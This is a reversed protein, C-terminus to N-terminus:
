RANRGSECGGPESESGSDHPQSSSGSESPAPEASSNPRKDQEQDPWCGYEDCHRACGQDHCQGSSKNHGPAPESDEPSTFPPHHRCESGPHCYADDDGCRGQGPKETSGPANCWKKPGAEDAHAALPTLVLLAALTCSAFRPSM